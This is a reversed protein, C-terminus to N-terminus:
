TSGMSRQAIQFEEIWQSHFKSLAQQLDSESMDSFQEAVWNSREILKRLYTSMLSSLFTEAMEGACYVIGTENTTREILGRSMMLLLGDEVLKRRVLLETSRLPLQPHLSEPGGVDGTHVVLFDFAVLKYLDFAKPYAATLAGVARIGAELPSNFTLSKNTNM